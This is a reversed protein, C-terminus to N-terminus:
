ETVNHKKNAQSKFKNTMIYSLVIIKNRIQLPGVIHTLVVFQKLTDTSM